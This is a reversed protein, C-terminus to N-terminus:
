ADANPAEERRPVSRIAGTEETFDIGAPCWTICRGCGTCGSSGFQEHWTGLKHTVWHRWRARVSTRAAGGHIYTFDPAFCSDWRRVRSAGGGGLAAADAVSTCFCTPCVQTCNGCAMCRAAVKEWQPHEPNSRLRSALALTDLTRGMQGSARGIAREAAAREPEGAPRAELGSLLREGKPSGSELVFYHSEGERVETLAVDFGSRARPGTDMSECFCTKAARTCQAAVILCKERRERYVPDAYPGGLMVRDLVAIAAVDCPRVGIFATPLAPDAGDTVSFGRGDSTASFLRVRPPNLFRKWGSPGVTHGFFLSGERKLRYSGPGQEEIWGAPLDAAGRIPQLAIVGERVVPGVLGYGASRIADLLRDLQGAELVVEGLRTNAPATSM